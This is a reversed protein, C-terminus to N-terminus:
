LLRLQQAKPKRRRRMFPNEGGRSDPIEVTSQIALKVDNTSSPASERAEGSVAADAIPRLKVAVPQVPILGCANTSEALVPAPFNTEDCWWLSPHAIEEEKGNAIMVWKDILREHAAFFVSAGFRVM